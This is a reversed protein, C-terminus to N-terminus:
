EYEGVAPRLDGEPALRRRQHQDGLDAVLRVAERDRAHPRTAGLDAGAGARELVDRADPRLLPRAQQLAEAAGPADAAGADLVQRRNFADRMLEGLRDVTGQVSCSGAGRTFRTTAPQAAAAASASPMTAQVPCASRPGPSPPSARRAAGGGAGAGAGTTTGAGGAPLVLRASGFGFAPCLQVSTRCCAASRRTAALGSM